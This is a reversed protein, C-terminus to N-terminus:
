PDEKNKLEPAYQNRFQEYAVWKPNEFIRSSHLDLAYEEVANKSHLWACNEQAWCKLADFLEMENSRKILEMMLAAWQSYEIDGMDTMVGYRYGLVRCRGSGSKIYSRGTGFHCRLDSFTLEERPKSLPFAEKM